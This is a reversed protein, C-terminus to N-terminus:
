GGNENRNSYNEACIGSRVKGVAAGASLPDLPSPGNSVQFWFGDEPLRPRPGTGRHRKLECFRDHLFFLEAWREMKGSLPYKLSEPNHNVYRGVAVDGCAQGTAFGSVTECGGNHLFFSRSTDEPYEVWLM